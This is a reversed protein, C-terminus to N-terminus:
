HRSQHRGPCLLACRNDNSPHAGWKDRHKRFTGDGSCPVDCVIRDFKEASAAHPFIQARHSSVLLSAAAGGLAACRAALVHARHGVLENAVM